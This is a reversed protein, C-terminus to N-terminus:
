KRVQKLLYKAELAKSALPHFTDNDGRELAENAQVAYSDQLMKLAECILEKAAPTLKLSM